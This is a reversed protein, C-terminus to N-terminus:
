LRLSDHTTENLLGIRFNLIIYKKFFMLKFGAARM